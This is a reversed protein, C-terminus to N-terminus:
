SRRVRFVATVAPSSNGTADTATLSIRYRGPRLRRLSLRARNAGSRGALTASRVLRPARRRAIRYIQARLSASETLTFALSLGPRRCTRSRRACLRGLNSRLAGITPAATDAAALPQVPPAPPAPAPAAAATVTVSGVMGVQRHPICYYTYTGPKTFTYQFTTPTESGGQFTDKVGSDFSEAQGPDATVSHRGHGWVWNVTDGQSITVSSPLFVDDNPQNPDETGVGVTTVAAEATGGMLATAVAVAVLM